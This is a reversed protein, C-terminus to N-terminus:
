DEKQIPDKKGRKNIRTENDFEELCDKLDEQTDVPLNNTPKITSLLYKFFLMLVFNFVVGAGSAVHSFFNGISYYLIFNVLNCMGIIAFTAIGITYFRETTINLDM